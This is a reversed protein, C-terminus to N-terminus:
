IVEKFPFKENLKRNQEEFITKLEALMIEMVKGYEDAPLECKLRLDVREFWDEMIDSM